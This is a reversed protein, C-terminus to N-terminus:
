IDSLEKKLEKKLKYKDYWEAVWYIWIWSTFMAGTGLFIIILMIKDLIDM